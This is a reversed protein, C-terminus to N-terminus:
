EVADMDDDLGGCAEDRGADDSVYGSVVGAPGHGADRAESGGALADGADDESPEWPQATASFHFPSLPEDLGQGGVLNLRRLQETAEAAHDVYYQVVPPGDAPVAPSAPTRPSLFSAHPMGAPVPMDPFGVPLGPPVGVGMPRAGQPVRARMSALGPPMSLPAAAPLSMPMPVGRLAGPAAMSYLGPPAPYALGARSRYDGVLVGTGRRDQLAGGGLLALDAELAALHVQNRRETSSRGGFTSTPPRWAGAWEQPEGAPEAATAQEEPGVCFGVLRHTEAYAQGLSRLMDVADAPLEDDALAGVDPEFRKMKSARRGCSSGSGHSGVSYFSASVSSRDDTADDGDDGVGDEDSSSSSSWEPRDDEESDAFRVVFAEDRERKRRGNTLSGRPATKSLATSWCIPKGPSRRKHRPKRQPSCSISRLPGDDDSDGAAQGGGAGAGMGGAPAAGATSGEGCDSNECTALEGLEESGVAADEARNAVAIQAAPAQVDPTAPPNTDDSAPQPPAVSTAKRARAAEKRRARRKKRRHQRKVEAAANTAAVQAKEDAALAELQAMARVDLAECCRALCAQEMLTGVLRQLEEWSGCRAAESAVFSHLEPAALPRRCALFAPVCGRLLALLAGADAAVHPQLSLSGSGESTFEVAELLPYHDAVAGAHAGGARMATATACLLAVNAKWVASVTEARSVTLADIREEKTLAEWQSAVAATSPGGCSCDSADGGTQSGVAQLAERGARCGRALFRARVTGLTPSAAAAARKRALRERAATARSAMVPRVRGAGCSQETEGSFGPGHLGGLSVPPTVAM